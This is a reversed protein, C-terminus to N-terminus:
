KHQVMTEWIEPYEHGMRWAAVGALGYSRALKLREAVTTEDELWFVRTHGDERYTIKFQGFEDDWARTVGREALLAPIDKLLLSRNGVLRGASDLKWDRSYFPIGLILRSRPIGYSLFERVGEETWPLGSVSGPKDSGSYHQDYAMIIVYDVIDALAAHDFATQHNWKISGRPLDISLVLGRARAAEALERVFATFRARDSGAVSEFDLNLGDVGLVAARDVLSRVFAQRAKANKLFATTLKGDFQNHVLPHVAYGNKKLWEVTARDSRDGLTGDAKELVFWTPSVVDLGMTGSVFARIADPDASGTWAWFQLRQRNDWLVEDHLTVVSSDAFTKAFAIAEYPDHFAGIQRDKQFVRYYPLNSWIVRGELRITAHAWKKADAVAEDLSAHRRLLRDNQYVEYPRKNVYVAKGTRVNFVAADDIHLAERVADELYAFVPGTLAIGNVAIRYVPEGGRLEEKREETLNDWIWENTRLDIIHADAWKEAERKAEDLTAFQWGPLTKDGQMLLYPQEIRKYSHWVWGGSRLDRVSSDAYQRATRIAEELTAFQWEPLTKDKQYVRYRALNDWVWERTDIREVYSNLRKKGDAIADNKSDYERVIRDNEYLRYATTRDAALGDLPALLLVAALVLLAAASFRKGM